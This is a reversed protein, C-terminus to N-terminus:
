FICQNHTQTNNFQGWEKVYIEIGPVKVTLSYSQKSIPVHQCHRIKCLSRELAHSEQVGCYKSTPMESKSVARSHGRDVCERSSARGRAAHNLQCRASDPHRVAKSPPMHVM